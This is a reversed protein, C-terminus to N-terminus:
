QKSVAVYLVTEGRQISYHGLHFQNYFPFLHKVLHVLEFIDNHEHYVSIALKPKFKSISERSGRLAKAESGEVDMKIFDIRAILGGSVLSDITRMPLQAWDARFGPSYGNVKLPDSYHNVDSVGFPFIQVNSNSFQAVNQELIELHDAIPDFAYVEGQEGAIHSFVATSEGTCAGADIIHDGESPQISIGDREYFYQKRYLIYEFGMTDAVLTKGNVELEYHRIDRFGETGKLKSPSSCCKEILKYEEYSPGVLDFDLPIKFCHHGVLRYQILNIFLNKSQEDSLLNYACFINELNNFLWKFYFIKEGIDFIKSRDVGDASFTGHDFNDTFHNTKLAAISEGLVKDLFEQSSNLQYTSM